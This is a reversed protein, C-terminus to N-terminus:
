SLHSMFKKKKLPGKIFTSIKCTKSYLLPCVSHKIEFPLFVIKHLSRDRHKNMDTNKFFTLLLNLDEYCFNVTKTVYRERKLRLARM